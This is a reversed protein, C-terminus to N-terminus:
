IAFTLIAMKEEENRGHSAVYELHCLYPNGGKDKKDKFYVEIIKLAKNYM